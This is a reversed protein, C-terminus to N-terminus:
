YDYAATPAFHFTKKKFPLEVTVDYEASVEIHRGTRVLTIEKAEDPLGLTDAEALIKDQIQKDTSVEAVRVSAKMVNEYSSANYYVQAIKLGYYAAGALILVSFLCGIKSAGRRNTVV